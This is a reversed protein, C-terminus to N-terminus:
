SLHAELEAAFVKAKEFEQRSLARSVENELAKRKEDFALYDRDFHEAFVMRRFKKLSLKRISTGEIYLVYDMCNAITYYDHSVMFVAGNYAEIARELAQQAYTDLHSTPEDLLLLNADLASLKALQLINKEGGSLSRIKQHMMDETFDYSDLYTMIKKNSNFGSEFLEEIPTRDLDLSEGQHQSLYALKVDPHLKISPHNGRAIDRLLTTKGSGNSGLLAVKDAPGIELCVDELLVEEFAASYNELSVSYCTRGKTEDSDGVGCMLPRTTKFCFPPEKIAVFPAKIAKAELREHHKVRAKLAKGRSADTNYTAAFRLREILAENKQVAEAHAVAQEQLEIKALLLSLNYESYTGDFEQIERNELHIIKNFCHNLLFRNHTIVLLMGKHANILEKLANLNEFDLFVDPEDMILLEPQHLMAKIVQVLKFEGGSIESVLLDKQKMLNALNLKKKINSDFHDGNMAEFVDLLTQYEELLRELDAEEVRALRDCLVDIRRRMAMFEEAIYDYVSLNSTQELQSFQKIYGMRGLISDDLEVYGDYMFREPDMLLEALTSKGSGSAGIFACQQGPLLSFSVSHYLDKQPFGFSMNSVRIM